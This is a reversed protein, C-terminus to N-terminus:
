KKFILNLVYFFIGSGITGCLAWIIKIYLESKTNANEIQTIKEHLSHNEQELEKVRGVLGGDETVESGMLATFLKDVKEKIQQIDQQM